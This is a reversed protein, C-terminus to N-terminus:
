RAKHQRTRKPAEVGARRRFFLTVSTCHFANDSSQKVIKDVIELEPHARLYDTVKEGLVERDRAKTASFVELADYAETTGTMETEMM